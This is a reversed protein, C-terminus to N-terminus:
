LQPKTKQGDWYELEGIGPYCLKHWGGKTDKFVWAGDQWEPEQWYEALGGINNAYWTPDSPAEGIIKCDCEEPSASSVPKAPGSPGFVLLYVNTCISVILFITLLLTSAKM